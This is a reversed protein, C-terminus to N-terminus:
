VFRGEVDRQRSLSFLKIQLNRQPTYIKPNVGREIALTSQKKRFAKTKRLDLIKKYEFAKLAKEKKIILFPLIEKLIKFINKHGYVYLQMCPKKETKYIYHSHCIGVRSGEFNSEILDKATLLFQENTNSTTLSVKPLNKDKTLCISGEGDIVAAM